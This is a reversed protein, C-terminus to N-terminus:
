KRKSSSRSTNSSLPSTTIVLFGVKTFIDVICYAFVEEDVTFWGLAEHSLLWVTTFFCSVIAFYFAAVRERSALVGVKKRPWIINIYYLFGACCLCSLIFGVSQVIINSSKLGFYPSWSMGFSLLSATWVQSRPANVMEGLAYLIFPISISYEVYRGIPHDMGLMLAIYLMSANVLMQGICYVSTRPMYTRKARQAADQPYYATAFVMGFFTSTLLILFTVTLSTSAPPPFSIFYLSPHPSPHDFTPVDVPSITPIPDM